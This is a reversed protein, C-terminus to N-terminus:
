VFFPKGPLEPVEIYRVDIDKRKKNNLEAANGNVKFFLHHKRCRNLGSCSASRICLLLNLKAEIASYGTWM